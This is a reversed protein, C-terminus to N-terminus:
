QVDRLASFLEDPTITSTGLKGVVVGAGANALVAADRVPIRGAVALALVSLVTDGAGTVDFVQRGHETRDTAAQGLRAYSIERSVAPVHFSDKATDEFVNLGEPGRTIVVASCGFHSLLAQGAQDISDADELSRMVFFGAQKANCVILTAGRYAYLRSTKPNVLAPIGRRHCETLVRDALSDSVVGKDYDSIVLADLRGLALKIRRVLSDELARRLPARRERDIRVIQHHRAVVRTKTTTIRSKDAVVGKTAIGVADLCTRIGRGAEDDGIVGFPFVTAGLAALNAAVNGAGGLVESENEFDVVPVPAEPSIRRASGWMYRDLMFDGVVAIRRGRLAKAWKTIRRSDITMPLQLVGLPM